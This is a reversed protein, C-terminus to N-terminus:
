ILIMNFEKQLMENSASTQTGLINNTGNPPLPVIGESDPSNDTAAVGTTFTPASEQPFRAGNIEVKYFYEMGEDLNVLDIQHVTNETPELISRCIDSPESVNECQWTNKSYIIKGVSPDQTIWSIEVETNSKLRVQLNIPEPNAPSAVSVNNTPQNLRNFGVLSVGIIASIVLFTIFGKYGEVSNM